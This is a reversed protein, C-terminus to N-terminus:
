PDRKSVGLQEEWWKLYAEDSLEPDLDRQKMRKQYWAHKQAMLSKLDVSKSEDTAGQDGTAKIWSELSERFEALQSAYQSDSALNKLEAPDAKLDYLEEKPRTKAMFPSTWKGQEYLVKMLTEVPYELTKYSSTQLYPREPQFNRIYKFRATRVSRIRDPADGCRDRAAYLKDHGSWSEDLLNKGPLKPPQIEAAALTTPMVDLLSALEEKVVGGKIKKPCVVILPTHLGGDYLWQKARVHPRGHDGFFFVLTNDYVGESKLREIVEGVKRDMVEITALYNSWDARTIPHKPYCAPIPAKERSRESKVFKRHPEGIHVQAFFPQGDKRQSWDTGDFHSKKDYLYNVGYKASKASKPEKSLGRGLSVFYGAGRMLDVATPVDNPLEKKDRTLHHYCGISTQYRGTQFASRSSSCVPSTSFAHKFLLGDAALRDVNPTAVDPYGYCGLEPGLDDSIIWVVNPRENANLPSVICVLTFLLVFYPISFRINGGLSDRAVLRLPFESMNYRSAM